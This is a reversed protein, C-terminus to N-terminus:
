TPVVKLYHSLEVRAIKGIATDTYTITEGGLTKSRVGVTNRSAHVLSVLNIAAQGIDEPVTSYGATYSVVVNKVGRPASYGRLSVGFQHVIYGAGQGVAAPIAVGDITLSSVATVPYNALMLGATDQGDRTETYSASAFQRGLGNQIATSVATILATLSADYTSVTINNWAKVDALTTLDAM